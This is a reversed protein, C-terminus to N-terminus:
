APVTVKHMWCAFPLMSGRARLDLRRAIEAEMAEPRPVITYWLNWLEGDRVAEIM